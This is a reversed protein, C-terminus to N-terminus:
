RLTDGGGLPFVIVDTESGDVWAVKWCGASTPFVDIFDISTRYHWNPPWRDPPDASAYAVQNIAHGVAIFDIPPADRDLRTARLRIQSRPSDALYWYSGVLLSRTPPAALRGGVRMPFTLGPMRRDFQFFYSGWTVTQTPACTASRSAGALWASVVPGDSSPTPSPVGRYHDSLVLAAVAAILSLLALGHRAV